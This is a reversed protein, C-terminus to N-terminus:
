GGTGGLAQRVADSVGRQLVHWLPRPDDAAWLARAQVGRLSRLWRALTIKKQKRLLLFARFDWAEQVYKIGIQPIPDSPVAPIDGTLYQYGLWPFDVGSSIALQNGSVTRLNIEILRYSRDREDYKFEIGVFGSYELARMLQRGQKVVQPADVSIQLSGDGYGPPCQRLKQKAFWALERTDESWLALYGFFRTDPGPVIEQVLFPIGQDFLREYHSRFERSSHIVAVKKRDLAATIGPLRPKLLCPYRVAEVIRDAESVSEPSFTVPIPIGCRRCFEYQDRKDLIRAFTTASPILFRFHPRLRSCNEAVWCNLADSTAFLVANSNLRKGVEELFSIWVRPQEAPPPLHFTEAYRTAMGPFDDFDLLLVPVGRRGLSRAFSLGNVHSGLILAPSRGGSLRSLWSSIRRQLRPSLMTEPM